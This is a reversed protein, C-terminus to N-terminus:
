RRLFRHGTALRIPRMTANGMPIAATWAANGDSPDGPLRATFDAFRLPLGLVGRYYGEATTPDASEHVVRGPVRPGRPHTWGTFSGAQWLSVAAGFPDVMTALVGQDAIPTPAILGDAGHAVAHAYVAEADEVRLYYSVHPPTDPPYAPNALSSLGTLWHGDARAKIAGRWDDPDVMCEWGFEEALARTAAEIDATKCDMWCFEGHPRTGSPLPRAGETTM